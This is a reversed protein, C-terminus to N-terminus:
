LAIISDLEQQIERFLSADNLIDAFQLNYWGSQRLGNIEGPGRNQLDLESIKFGDHNKCFAAFKARTEKDVSEALLLFCFSKKSGRGVRGRLQHLQALGFREANEIVIISANPVDVGVEVVTTAVLMKLGGSVFQEMISDRSDSDLKGHICATAIGTFSGRTLASFVTQLDKVPAPDTSDSDQEIRPVVYFAQSGGKIEKIIFEEMDHRKEDPVIHTAVPIRGSPPKAITVIDLDGYLTRALTQPIPTASMLLFDSANDKEQMALRQQAGFKHQEDIIIMGLAKFKVSPQILAHTGVICQASGDAISSLVTQKEKVSLASKLLVTSVGCPNLLDSVAHYIQRALIDTPALWAVQLGSDLAALSAFFAVLTKGSGVDGQLIRHMRKESVADKYLTAIASEQDSTLSFPLKKKIREPLTAPSMSRGPFAFKKRSLRLTLALKYLEEYKLREKYKDLDALSMPRHLSLLCTQLSPFKKRTEVQSPLLQPYHKLNDLIWKISNFLIKQQIGAEKMSSTISYHPLIQQFSQVGNKVQEIMPHTMQYHGFKGVKGTVLLTDGKHITKSFFQVGSFWILEISGTNDALKARLRGRSGRELQVIEITGSVTITENLYRDIQSLPIIKSRDIYRYPFWYLLDGLSHIGSEMMAAIRKDGMGPIVDLPSLFDIM